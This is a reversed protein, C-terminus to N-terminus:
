FVEPYFHKFAKYIGDSDNSSTIFSAEHKIDEKANEMCVGVTVRKFFPIDSEADGFAFSDKTTLNYHNNFWEFASERSANKSTINAFGIHTYRSGPAIGFYLSDSKDDRYSIVDAYSEDSTSIIVGKIIKEEKIVRKLDKIIPDKKLVETHLDTLENEIESFYDTLSYLELYLKKSECYSVLDECAEKSLEHTLFPDFSKPDLIVGGSHFMCPDLIDLADIIKQAGFSARGSALCVPIKKSKLIKVVEKTSPLVDGDTTVSTGDIDFFVAGLNNIDLKKM